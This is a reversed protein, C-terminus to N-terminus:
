QVEYIVEMRPQNGARFIGSAAPLNIPTPGQFPGITVGTSTQTDAVAQGPALTLGTPHTFRITGNIPGGGTVNTPPLEAAFVVGGLSQSGSTNFGNAGFRITFEKIVITSGTTNTIRIPATVPAVAGAGTNPDATQEVVTIVSLRDHIASISHRDGM